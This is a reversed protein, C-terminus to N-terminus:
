SSIIQTHQVSLGGTLFDSQIEFVTPRELLLSAFLAALHVVWHGALVDALEEENLVPLEEVAVEDTGFDLDSGLPHVLPLVCIVAEVRHCGQGSGHVVPKEKPKDVEAVTGEDILGHFTLIDQSKSHQSVGNGESTLKM